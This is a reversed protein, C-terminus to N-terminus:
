DNLKVKKKIDEEIYMFFNYLQRVKDTRKFKQLINRIRNKTQLLNFDIKSSKELRKIM